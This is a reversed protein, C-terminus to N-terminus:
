RGHSDGKDTFRRDLLTNVREVVRENSRILGEIQPRQRGVEEQVAMIKVEQGSQNAYIKIGGGVAALVVVIVVALVGLLAHRMSNHSKYCQDVTVFQKEESGGM